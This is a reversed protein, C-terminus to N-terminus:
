SNGRIKNLKGQVVNIFVAHLLITIITFVAIVGIVIAVVLGMNVDVPESSTSNTHGIDSPWSPFLMAGGLVAGSLVIYLLFTDVQKIRKGTAIELSETMRWMWYYVGGPILFWWM